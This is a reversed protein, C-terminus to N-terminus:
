EPQLDVLLLSSRSALSPLLVPRCRASQPESFHRKAQLEKYLEGNAAYELILYM